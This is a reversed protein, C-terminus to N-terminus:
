INIKNFKTRGSIEEEHQYKDPHKIAFKQHEEEAFNFINEDLLKVKVEKNYKNQIDNIINAFIIKQNENNTFVATQYSSGRDIFQGDGDFPDINEFYTKLLNEYTIKDSDYEIMIAEMHGTTGSKVENYSPNVKKGGCYGSYVELVGDLNYFAGAICWFCGGAFVVRKINSEICKVEKRNVLLKFGISKYLHSSIPNNNDVYLYAIKGSKVIENRITSVVKRAFGKGRYNPNTYVGSISCINDEERTKHACSVIENNYKFVYYNDVIIEHEIKPEENFIEIHFKKDYDQLLKTDEISAKQADSADSVENSVLLGMSFLDEFKFKSYKTYSKCFENVLDESALVGNIHLNHSYIEYALKDCLSVDGFLLLNYPDRNLAILYKENDIIKICFNNREFGMIAPYNLKFFSNEILNNDIIERNDNYFEDGNKYYIVM